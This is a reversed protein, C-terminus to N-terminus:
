GRKAISVCPGFDFGGWFAVGDDAVDTVHEHTPGIVAELASEVSHLGWRFGGVKPTFAIANSEEILRTSVSLDLSRQLLVWQRSSLSERLSSHLPVKSSKLLLQRLLLLLWARINM